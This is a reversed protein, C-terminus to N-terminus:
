TAYMRNRFGPTGNLAKVGDLYENWKTSAQDGWSKRQDGKEFSEDGISYKTLSGTRSEAIRQLSKAAACLLIVHAHEDTMDAYTESEDLVHGAAYELQRAFSFQPTPNFVLKKGRIYWGANFRTTRSVPVLGEGAVVVGGISPPPTLSIVKVFDDPLPYEAQNAVVSVQFLVRQTVRTNFDRVADKLILVYQDSSPVDNVAPALIRLEAVLDDLSKGM